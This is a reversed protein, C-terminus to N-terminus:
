PPVSIKIDSILSQLKLRLDRWRGHLHYWWGSALWFCSLAHVIKGFTASASGGMAIYIM